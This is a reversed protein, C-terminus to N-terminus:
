NGISMWYFNAFSGSNGNFKWDFKLRTAIGMDVFLSNDSSASSTPKSILCLQVNFCNNPFSINNTSFTVTGTDGNNFLNGSGHTGSVIGWQILIGGAMFTYGNAAGSPAVNMTLQQTIGGGTRWFLATDNAISNFTRTYLQGIGVISSPTNSRPVMHITKHYGAPQSGPSGNNNIHDVALTQFTGDLNNRITSKTQGLSSGDPPYGPTYVPISM